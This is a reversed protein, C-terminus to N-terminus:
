DRTSISLSTASLLRETMKVLDGVARRASPPAKDKRPAPAGNVM